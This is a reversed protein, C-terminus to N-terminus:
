SDALTHHDCLGGAALRDAAAAYRAAREAYPRRTHAHVPAPPRSAPTM